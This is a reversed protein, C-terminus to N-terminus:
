NVSRAESGPAKVRHRDWASPHEGAHHGPEGAHAPYLYNPGV